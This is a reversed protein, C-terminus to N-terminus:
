VAICTYCQNGWSFSIGVAMKNRNGMLINWHASSNKFQDVIKLAAKDVSYSDSITVRGICEGGCIAGSEERAIKMDNEDHAYNSIVQEARIFAYHELEAPSFTDYERYSNIYYLVRECLLDVNDVALFTGYRKSLGTVKIM